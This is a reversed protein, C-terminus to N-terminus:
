HFPANLVYLAYAYSLNFSTAIAAEGEPFAAKLIDRAYKFSQFPDKAIEKIEKANM